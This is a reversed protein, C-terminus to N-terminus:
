ETVIPDGDETVLEFGDETYLQAGSPLPPASDWPRGPTPSVTGVYYNLARYGPTDPTQRKAQALAIKALKRAEKDPLTSIGNLAM